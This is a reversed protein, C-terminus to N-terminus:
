APTVGEPQPVWVVSFSAGGLSSAGDYFVSAGQAGAATQCIALGLGTGTTRTTFFPEFLSPQVAAPVGPGNDSVRITHDDIHLLVRRELQGRTAAVANQTLNLLIRHTLDADAWASGSGEVDIHVDPDVGAVIDVVQRAAEALDLRALHTEPPRAFDLLDHVMRDLRRVQQHVKSMISAKPDTPPFTAQLVQIAGSISALPNRLEHAVAASMEGMRALSEAKELRRAVQLAETHDSIQVLRGGVPSSIPSCTASFSRAQGMLRLETPSRHGGSEPLVLDRLSLADVLVEPLAQHLPLGKPPQVCLDRAAATAHLVRQQADLLFAATTLHDLMQREALVVREDQQVDMFSETMLSLDLTAVKHIAHITELARAAPLQQHAIECLAHVIVQMSTFMYAQDLGVAVHRRGVRRRNHAYVEDFPGNLLQNIWGMLLKHQRRLQDPGSFVAMAEPIEAIRAYFQEAISPLEPEVHPWLDSLLQEDRAAFRVWLKIEVLNTM